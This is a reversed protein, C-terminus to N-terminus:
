TTEYYSKKIVKKPNINPNILKRKKFFKLEMKSCVLLSTETFPLVAQKKGMQDWKSKWNKFRKDAYKCAFYYSHFGNFIAPKEISRFIIILVSKILGFSDIIFVKILQLILKVKTVARNLTGM